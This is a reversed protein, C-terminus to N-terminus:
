KNGLLKLVDGLVSPEAGRARWSPWFFQMKRKNARFNRDTYDQESMLAAGKPDGDGPEYEAKAQGLSWQVRSWIGNLEGKGQGGNEGTARGVGGSALDRDEPEASNSAAEFDIGDLMLSCYQHGNVEVKWEAPCATAQAITSTAKNPMEKFLYLPNGVAAAFQLSDEYGKLNSGQVDAFVFGIDNEGGEAKAFNEFQEAFNGSQTIGCDHFQPFFSGPQNADKLEQIKKCRRKAEKRVHRELEDFDDGCSLGGTFVRVAAEM